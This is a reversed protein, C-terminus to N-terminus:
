LENSPRLLTTPSQYMAHSIAPILVIFLLLLFSYAASSFFAIFRWSVFMLFTSHISELRSVRMQFINRFSNSCKNYFIKIVIDYRDYSVKQFKMIKTDTFACNSFFLVIYPIFLSHRLRIILSLFPGVFIYKRFWKFNRYSNIGSVPNLSFNCRCFSFLITQFPLQM